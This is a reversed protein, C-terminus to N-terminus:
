LQPAPGRAPCYRIRPPLARAIKSPRKVTLLSSIRASAAGIRRWRRRTLKSASAWPRVVSSIIALSRSSGHGLRQAGFKQVWGDEVLQAGHLELRLRQDLPNERAHVARRMVAPRDFEGFIGFIRGAMLNAMDIPLDVGLGVFIIDFLVFVLGIKPGIHDHVGRTRHIKLALFGGMGLEVIDRIHGRRERM